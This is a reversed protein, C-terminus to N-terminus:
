IDRNPLNYSADINNLIKFRTTPKIGLEEYSFNIFTGYRFLALCTDRKQRYFKIFSIYESQEKEIFFDSKRTCGGTLVQITVGSQDFVYGLLTEESEESMANLSFLFIALLMLKKM